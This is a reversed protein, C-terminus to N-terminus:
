CYSRVERVITEIDAFRYIVSILSSTKSFFYLQYSDRYIYIFIFVFKAFFINNENNTIVGLYKM